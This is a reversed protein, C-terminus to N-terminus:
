ESVLLTISPEGCAVGLDAQENQYLPGIRGALTLLVVHMASGPPQGGGGGAWILRRKGVSLTKASGPLLFPFATDMRSCRSVGHGSLGCSFCVTGPVGTEPSPIHALESGTSILQRLLVEVGPPMVPSTNRVLEAPTEQQVSQQLCAM